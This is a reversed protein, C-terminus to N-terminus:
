RNDKWRKPLYSSVINNKSNIYVIKKNIVKIIWLNYNQIDDNVIKIDNIHYDITSRTWGNYVFKHGKCKIGAIAHGIVKENKNWNGLLVSDQKCGQLNLILCFKIFFIFNLKM